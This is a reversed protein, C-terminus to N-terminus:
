ICNKIMQTHTHSDRQTVDPKHRYFKLIVWFIITVDVHSGKLEKAIARFGEFCKVYSEIAKDLQSKQDLKWGLSVKGTCQAEVKKGQKEMLSM